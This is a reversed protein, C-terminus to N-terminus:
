KRKNYQKVITNIFHNSCASINCVEEKSYNDRFGYGSEFLWCHTLEHKLTNKKQQISQEKVLYITNTPYECFGYLFTDDEEGYKNLLEENTMELITWIDGNIEFKM